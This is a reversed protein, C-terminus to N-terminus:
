AVHLPRAVRDRSPLVDVSACGRNSADPSNLVVAIVPIEGDVTNGAKRSSMVKCVLSPKVSTPSSARGTSPGPSAVSTVNCGSGVAPPKISECTNRLADNRSGASALMLTKRNLVRPVQLGRPQLSPAKSSALPSFFSTSAATWHAVSAPSGLMQSSPQDKPVSRVKFYPSKGWTIPAIKSDGGNRYVESSSNRRQASSPRGSRTSTGSRSSKRCGGWARSRKETIGCASTTAWSATCKHTPSFCTRVANSSITAM